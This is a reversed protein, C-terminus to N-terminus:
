KKYFFGRPPKPLGGSPKNSCPAVESWSPDRGAFSQAFGRHCQTTRHRNGKASRRDEEMVEAHKKAAGLEKALQDRQMTLESNIFRLQELEEHQVACGKRFQEVEQRLREKVGQLDKERASAAAAENNLGTNVDLAEQLNAKLEEIRCNAQGLSGNLADREDLATRCDTRLHLITQRLEPITAQKRQRAVKKKAM